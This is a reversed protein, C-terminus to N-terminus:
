EVKLKLKRSRWHRREINQTVRRNSKAIAFLPVRRNQKLKKGLTAKKQPSKVRSM